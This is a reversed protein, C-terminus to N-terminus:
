RSKGNLHEEFAEELRPHLARERGKDLMEPSEITTVDKAVLWAATRGSDCGLDTVPVVAPWALWIRRRGM